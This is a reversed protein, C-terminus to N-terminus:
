PWLAAASLFDLFREAASATLEKQKTANRKRQKMKVVELSQM